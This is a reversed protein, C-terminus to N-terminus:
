QGSRLIADYVPNSVGFGLDLKEEDASLPPFAALLADFYTKTGRKFQGHTIVYPRRNRVADLVKAGVDLPDM